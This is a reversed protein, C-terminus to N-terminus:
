YLEESVYMDIDCYNSFFYINGKSIADIAPNM